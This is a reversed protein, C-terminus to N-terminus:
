ITPAFKSNLDHRHMTHKAEMEKVWIEKEDIFHIPGTQGFKAWKSLSVARIRTESLQKGVVLLRYLHILLSGRGSEHLRIDLMEPSVSAALDSRLSPPSAWSSAVSSPSLDPPPLLASAEAVDADGAEVVAVGVNTSAERTAMTVMTIQAYSQLPCGLM